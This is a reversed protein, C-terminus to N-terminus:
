SESTLQWTTLPGISLVVHHPIQIRAVSLWRQRFALLFILVEFVFFHVFIIFIPCFFLFM